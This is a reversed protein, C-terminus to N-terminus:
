DALARHLQGLSNRELDPEFFSTSPPSGTKCGWDTLCAATLNGTRPGSARRDEHRGPQRGGHQCLGSRDWASWRATTTGASRSLPAFLLNFQEQTPVADTITARLNTTAAELVRRM